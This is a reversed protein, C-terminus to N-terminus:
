QCNAPACLTNLNVVNIKFSQTVPCGNADTVRVTYDTTTGPSAIPSQCFFCSLGTAPTWQYTYTGSISPTATLTVQQAGFGTYITNPSGYPTITPSPTVSLAVSFCLDNKLVSVSQGTWNATVIDGDGDNDVDAVYVAIPQSGNANFDRRELFTGDGANLSVSVSRFGYVTGGYHNATIVDPKGDGNVDSIFIGVPLGNTPYSTQQSFIGTGDNKYVTFTGSNQNAVVVDGDEDGDLDSVFVDDPYNGTSYYVPAQFEGEGNNLSTFMQNDFNSAGVIDMDGDRDIDYLYLGFVGSGTFFYGAPTGFTGNGSNILVSVPSPAGHFRSVVIDGFGDGDLDAIRIRAFATAPVIGGAQYIVPSGFTGTGNNMLISITNSCSNIVALDLDGDNDVDYPYVDFPTICGSTADTIYNVKPAFTGNGNNMLVSITNSTGGLQVSSNAAIIDGYGDGNLDSVTVGIPGIGASYNVGKDFLGPSPDYLITFQSSFPHVTDNIADIIGETVNVRVVEGKKFSVAPTFNLQTNGGPFSFTGTHKGSVEGTVIFSTNSVTAPNVAHDFTVTITTAPNINLAGQSPSIGAVHTNGYQYATVPVAYNNSITLPAAPIKTSDLALLSDQAFSGLSIFLFVVITFLLKPQKM